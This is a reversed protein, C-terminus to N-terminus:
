IGVIVIQLLQNLVLFQTNQGAGLTSYPLSFSSVICSLTLDRDYCSIYFKASFGSLARYKVM